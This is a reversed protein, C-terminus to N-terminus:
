QKVGAEREIASGRRAKADDFPKQRGPEAADLSLRSEARLSDDSKRRRFPEGVV